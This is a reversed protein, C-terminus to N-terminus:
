KRGSARLVRYGKDRAVVDVHAFLTRLHGASSEAGQNKRIVVWLAGQGALRGCAQGYLAFVTQKGARVPPNMVVADFVLDPPLASVGDGCFVFVRDAVGNDRANQVALAAARENVDTMWVRAGPVTGAIAVGIPGYGCGLDLVRAGQAAVVAEALLRSGCDIGERSFVGRDTTFRFDAGRLRAGFTVPDSPTAPRVSFYHDAM